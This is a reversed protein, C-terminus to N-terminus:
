KIEVGKAQIMLGSKKNVVSGEVLVKKGAYQPIAFGSKGTDVYISINGENVKVFFWCGTSCENDIRGEITVAKGEYVKPSALIDKIATVKRNSIPQGYKEVKGFSCGAIIFVLFVLFVLLTRNILRM